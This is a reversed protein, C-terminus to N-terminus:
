ILLALAEILLEAAAAMIDALEELRCRLTLADSQRWRQELNTIYACACALRLLELCCCRMVWCDDCLM